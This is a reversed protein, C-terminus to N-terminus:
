TLEFADSLSLHPAIAVRTESRLHDARRANDDFHGTDSVRTVRLLPATDSMDPKHRHARVVIRSRIPLSFPNSKRHAVFLHAHQADLESDGSEKAQSPWFTALLELDLPIRRDSKRALTDPDQYRRERHVLFPHSM